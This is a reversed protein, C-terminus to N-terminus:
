HLVKGYVSVFVFSVPVEGATVRSVADAGCQAPWFPHKNPRTM